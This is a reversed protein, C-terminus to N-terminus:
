ITLNKKKKKQELKRENREIKANKLKLSVSTFLINIAM